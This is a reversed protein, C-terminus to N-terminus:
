SSPISFSAPMTDGKMATSVTANTYNANMVKLSYQTYFEILYSMGASLGQSTPGTYLGSCAIFHKVFPDTRLTQSYNYSDSITCFETTDTRKALALYDGYIANTATKMFKSCKSEIVMIRDVLDM